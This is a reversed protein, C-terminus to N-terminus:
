RTILEGSTATRTASLPLSRCEADLGETRRAPPPPPSEPDLVERADGPKAVTDPRQQRLPLEYEATIAAGTDPEAAVAHLPM